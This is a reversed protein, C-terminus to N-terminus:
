DGSEVPLEVRITTGEGPTSIVDLSGGVYEARERMCCFGMGCDTWDLEDAVFGQGDDSVSAVVHKNQLGIAVRASRAGAHRVVNTLAEQVIRYVALEM